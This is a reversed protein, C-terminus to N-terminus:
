VSGSHRITLLVAIAAAMALCAAEQCCHLAQIGVVANVPLAVRVCGAQIIHERCAPAARKPAKADVPMARTPSMRSLKCPGPMVSVTLCNHLFHNARLLCYMSHMTIYVETQVPLM